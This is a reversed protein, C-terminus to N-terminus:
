GHEVVELPVGSWAGDRHAQAAQVADIGQADRICPRADVFREGRMDKLWELTPFARAGAGLAAAAQAQRHHAGNGHGVLAAHGAAIQLTAAAQEFQRPWFSRDSDSVWGGWTCAHTKKDESELANFAIAMEGQQVCLSATDSKFAAFSRGLVAFPHLDFM